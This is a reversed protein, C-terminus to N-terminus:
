RQVYRTCDGSHYPGHVVGRLWQELAALCALVAKRNRTDQRRFTVSVDEGERTIYGLRM